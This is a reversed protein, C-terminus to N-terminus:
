VGEGYLKMDQATKKNHCSHCLPQLNSYELRKSFDLTLPVIHDVVDANTILDLKSCEACLGAYQEMVSERARIWEASRYFAAHIKDRRNKDYNRNKTSVSEKKHKPCYRESM